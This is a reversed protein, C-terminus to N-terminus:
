KHQKRSHLSKPVRPMLVVVVVVGRSLIRFSNEEDFADDNDIPRRGAARSNFLRM